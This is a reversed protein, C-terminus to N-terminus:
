LDGSSATSYDCQSKREVVARRFELIRGIIEETDELVVIKQGSTLTIVTDPTSEIHEILDSNLIIPLHNIRTLRVM